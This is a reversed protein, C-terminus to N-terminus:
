MSVRLILANRSEVANNILSQLKKNKKSLTLFSTISKHDNECIYSPCMFCSPYSGLGVHNDCDYETATHNDWDNVM